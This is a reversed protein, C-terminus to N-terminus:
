SKNNKYIMECFQFDEIFDIDWSTIRDLYYFYPNGGLLSGNNIMDERKLISVVFTLASIDNLDQSRIWPNLTFGIPKKKYFIYDNIETVSILCDYNAGMNKHINIAKEYVNTYALPNTVPIWVINEGVCESALYSYVESMPIKSTSYKPNRVHTEVNFKQAIKLVEENESSVYIKDLSKVSIIQKLKLELLNTDHFSRTNKKRIRQSNGKVAILAVYNSM